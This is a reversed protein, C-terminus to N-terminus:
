MGVCLGLDVLVPFLQGLAALFDLTAPHGVLKTHGPLDHRGHQLVQRAIGVRGLRLGYHARHQLHLLEVDGLQLSSVFAAHFQLRRATRV